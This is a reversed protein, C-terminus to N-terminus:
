RASHAERHHAAGNVARANKKRTDLVEYIARFKASGQRETRILGKKELSVLVSHLSGSPISSVKALEAGKVEVFNKKDMVSRLANLVAQQRDSLDSPVAQPKAASVVKAKVAAAPRPKEVAAQASKASSAQKPKEASAQIKVPVKEGHKDSSGSELRVYDRARAADHFTAIVELLHPASADARLVACTGDEFIATKLEVKNSTMLISGKRQSLGPRVIFLSLRGSWSVPKAAFFANM